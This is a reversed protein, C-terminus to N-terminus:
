LEDIKFIRDFPCQAAEVAQRAGEERDVLCVAGLVELGAERAAEIAKVTSEGTTTTDDLIVVKSGAQEDSLGEIQRKLGHGKPEKRILFANIPHGSPKMAELSERAVATVLPDAGMTLGGVADPFWQREGFKALMLRGILPMAEARCTTVRADCYVNSIRGSALKYEGGRRVSYKTLIAALRARDQALTM